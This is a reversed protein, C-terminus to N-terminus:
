HISPLAKSPKAIKAVGVRRGAGQAIYQRLAEISDSLEDDTMDQLPREIEVQKPMLSAVTRIYDGPRDKRMTQIAAVGNEAFDDSLAALFNEQLKHRSGKPRGAPNGSQGPKFQWPADCQDGDTTVTKQTM